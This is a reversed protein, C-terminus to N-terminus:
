TKFWDLVNVTSSLLLEVCSSELNYDVTNKFESSSWLRLNIESIKEKEYNWNWLLDWSFQEGNRYAM